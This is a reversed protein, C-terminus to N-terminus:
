FNLLPSLSCRSHSTKNGHLPHHPPHPLGLSGSVVWCLESLSLRLSPYRKPELSWQYQKDNQYKLLIRQKGATRCQDSVSVIFKPVIWIISQGAVAPSSHVLSHFVTCRQAQIHHVVCSARTELRTRSHSTAHSGVLIMLTRRLWSGKSVNGTLHFRGPPNLQNSNQRWLTRGRFPLQRSSGLTLPWIIWIFKLINIWM